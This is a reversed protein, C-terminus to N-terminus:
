LNHQLHPCCSEGCRQHRGALIWPTVDRFVIFKLSMENLIDSINPYLLRLLLLFQFIQHLLLGKSKQGSPKRKMVRGSCCSNQCSKQPKGSGKWTFESVNNGEPSPSKAKGQLGKVNPMWKVMLGQLRFVYSIHYSIIHYSIILYSIIHYSIIHYSIIHYSIFRYSVIHCKHYKNVAVPNGGPPLPRYVQVFIFFLCSHVFPSVICLVICLVICFCLIFLISFLFVFCSFLCLLLM